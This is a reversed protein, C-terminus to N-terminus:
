KLWKGKIDRRSEEDRGDRWEWMGMCKFPASAWLLGCKTGGDMMVSQLGFLNFFPYFFLCILSVKSNALLTVKHHDVHNKIIFLCIFLCLQLELIDNLFM